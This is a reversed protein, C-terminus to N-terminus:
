LTGISTLERIWIRITRGWRSDRPTQQNEGLIGIGNSFVRDLPTSQRQPIASRTSTDEEGLGGRRSRRTRIKCLLDMGRASHSLTSATSHVITGCTIEMESNLACRISSMYLFCFLVFMLLRSYIMTQSLFIEIHNTWKRAERGESEKKKKEHNNKADLWRM